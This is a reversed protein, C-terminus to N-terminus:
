VSLTDITRNIMTDFAAGSKRFLAYLTFVSVIDVSSVAHIAAFLARFTVISRYAQSAVFSEIRRVVSLAVLADFMALLAVFLLTKLTLIPIVVTFLIAEDTNESSDHVTLDELIWLFFSHILTKVAIVTVTQRLVLLRAELAVVWIADHAVLTRFETIEAVVHSEPFVSFAELLASNLVALDAVRVVVVLAHVALIVVAQVVVVLALWALKVVAVIAINVRIQAQFAHRTIADNTFELSAFLTVIWIADIAPSVSVVAIIAFVTEVQFVTTASFALRSVAVIARIVCSHAESAGLTETEVQDFTAFSETLAYRAM